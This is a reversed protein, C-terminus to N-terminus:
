LVVWEFVLWGAGAFCAVMGWLTAVKLWTSGAKLNVLMLAMAFVLLVIAQQTVVDM